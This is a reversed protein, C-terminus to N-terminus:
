QRNYDTRDTPRVAVCKSFPLYAELTTARVRHSSYFGGDILYFVECQPGGLVLYGDITLDVEGVVPTDLSIKGSEILDRITM